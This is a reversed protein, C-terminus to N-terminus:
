LIPGPLGWGYLSLKTIISGHQQVLDAVQQQQHRQGVCLGLELQKLTTPLTQPHLPLEIHKLHLQTLHQLGAAFPVVDVAKTGGGRRRVALSLCRLGTMAAAALMCSSDRADIKVLLRALHAASLQQLIGASVDHSTLEFSQLQLSGAPHQQLAAELMEM